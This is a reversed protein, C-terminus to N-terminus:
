KWVWCAAMGKLQGLVDPCGPWSFRIFRNSDKCRYEHARGAVAPHTRLAKLVEWWPPLKQPSNTPTDKTGPLDANM